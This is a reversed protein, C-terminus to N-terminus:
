AGMLPDTADTTQHEPPGVAKVDGLIGASTALDQFLGPKALLAKATDLQALRGDSLVMVRDSGMITHLRHAITLVLCGSFEAGLIRQIRADNTPDVNATAEDLCLVRTSRLLARALCFVQREGVSFNAGAEAVAGNLGGDFRTVLDDLGCRTLGDSVTEDSLQELPDLNHRLTGCFLMPDQPVISVRRRLLAIGVTAIDVEDLLIRGAEPELLRLLAGMFTSKGSGTRGVIGVKECAGIEASLGGLALPLHSAYRISVDEFVLGKGEPSPWQGLSADVAQHHPPEQDTRQVFESCREVSALSGEVQSLFFVMFRISEGVTLAYILAMFKLSGGSEAGIDDNDRLPDLVLFTAFSGAVIAGLLNLRQESWQNTADKTICWRQNNAVAAHLRSVFIAQRQFASITSLGSITEEFVHFMPGKTMMWFRVAERVTRRHLERVAVFFGMLVVVPVTLLPMNAIAFSLINFSKWTVICFVEAHLPLTLDITMQDEGFRSMIRGSPTRDFFSTPCRILRALMMKHINSATKVTGFIVALRSASILCLGLFNSTLWIGLYGQESIEFVDDQWLALFIDPM